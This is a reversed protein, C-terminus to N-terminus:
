TKSRRGAFIGGIVPHFHHRDDIGQLGEFAKLPLGDGDMGVGLIYDVPDGLSPGFPPGFPPTLFAPLFTITFRNILGM